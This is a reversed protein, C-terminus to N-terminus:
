SFQFTIGKIFPTDGLPLNKRVRVQIETNTVPFSGWALSSIGSSSITGSCRTTGAVVDFIDVILTRPTGSFVEVNLLTAGTTFAGYYATTWPFYAVTTFFDGYSSILSSVVTFGTNGTVVASSLQFTIGKILPTDGLPLNKRVRVQIESDATPFSVWSLFTLGTTSITGSSRTVGATVDFIDVILTRPTGVFVEVNLITVGSTFSSYYTNSWPFYAITTFTDGYSSILSSVVPFVAAGGGGGGGLPPLQSLPVKGDPGLSAIGDPAGVATGGITGNLRPDNITVTGGSRDDITNTQLANTIVRDLTLTGNSGFVIKPDFTATFIDTFLSAM